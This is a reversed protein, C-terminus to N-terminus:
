GDISSILLFDNQAKYAEATQDVRIELVHNELDVFLQNRTKVNLLELQTQEPNKFLIKGELTEIGGHDNENLSERRLVYTMNDKLEVDVAMGSCDECRSSCTMCPTTGQYNGVWLPIVKKEVWGDKVDDVQTNTQNSEQCGLLVTSAFLPILVRNKMYCFCFLVIAILYCVANFLENSALFEDRRSGAKLGM